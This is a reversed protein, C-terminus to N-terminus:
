QDEKDDDEDDEEEDEEEDEEDQIERYDDILSEVEDSMESWENTLNQQKLLTALIESSLASPTYGMEEAIALSENLSADNESLYEMARSYYIVEEQSIATQVEDTLASFDNDTDWTIDFTTLLGDIHGEIEKLRDEKTNAM